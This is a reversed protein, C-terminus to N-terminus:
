EIYKGSNVSGPLDTIMNVVIWWWDMDQAGTYWKTVHEYTLVNL